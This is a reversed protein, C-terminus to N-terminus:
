EARQARRRHLAEQILMAATVAGTVKAMAHGTPDEMSEPNGIMARTGETSQQQHDTSATDM